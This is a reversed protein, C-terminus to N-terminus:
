PSYKNQMKKWAVLWAFDVSFSCCFSRFMTPFQFVIAKPGKPPGKWKKRTCIWTKFCKREKGNKPELDLTYIDGSFRVCGGFLFPHNSWIFFMGKFFVTGKKPFVEPAGLEDKIRRGFHCDGRWSNSIKTRLWLHRSAVVPAQSNGGISLHFTLPFRSHVNGVVLLFHGSIIWTNLNLSHYSRVSKTRFRPEGFSPPFIFGNQSSHRLHTSVM